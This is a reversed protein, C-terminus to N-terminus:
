GGMIGAELGTAEGFAGTLGGCAEEAAGEAGMEGGTVRTEAELGGATGMTEVAKGTSTDWDGGLDAPSITSGGLGAGKGRVGALRGAEAEGAFLM